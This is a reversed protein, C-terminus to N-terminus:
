YRARTLSKALSAVSVAVAAGLLAAGTWAIPAVDVVLGAWALGIGANWAVLRSRAAVALARRQAAHEVPGGPTVSPVLHGRWAHAPRLTAWAATVAPVGTAGAAGIAMATALEALALGYALLAIPHRRALPDRTPAVTHRATLGLGALALLAGALTWGSGLVSM